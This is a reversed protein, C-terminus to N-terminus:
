ILFEVGLKFSGFMTTKKRWVFVKYYTETHKMKQTIAKLSLRWAVYLEIFCIKHSIPAINLSKVM